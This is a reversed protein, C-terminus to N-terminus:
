GAALVDQRTHLWDASGKRWMLSGLVYRAAPATRAAHSTHCVGEHWLRTVCVRHEAKRAPPPPSDHLTVWCFFDIKVRVTGSEDALALPHAFFLLCKLVTQRNKINQSTQVPGLGGAPHFLPWFCNLLVRASAVPLAWFPWFLGLGPGSLASVLWCLYIFSSVKRM